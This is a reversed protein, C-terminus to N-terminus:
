ERAREVNVVDVWERGCASRVRVCSLPRRNVPGRQKVDCGVEVLQLDRLPQEAATHIGVRSSRNVRVSEAAVGREVRRDDRLVIEPHVVALTFRIVRTERQKQQVTACIRVYARRQPLTELLTVAATRQPIVSVYCREAPTLLVM